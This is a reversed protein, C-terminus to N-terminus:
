FPIGTGDVLIDDDSTVQQQPKPQVQTQPQQSQRQYTNAQYSQNSNKATPNYSGNTNYTNNNNNNADGLMEMNEVIVSHKSKNNGQQDQWIDQKLRGEILLKSGKALYQNATEALKNFFVVDIFCTEERKEGNTIFKRTVAISSIGIATGTTTYRLEIDKTLHGLLVIKNFM